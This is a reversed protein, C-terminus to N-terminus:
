HLRMADLIFTCLFPYNKGHLRMFISSLPITFFYFNLDLIIETGRM